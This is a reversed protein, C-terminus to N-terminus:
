ILGEKKMFVMADNLSTFIRDAQSLQSHYSFNPQIAMCTLGAAKASATGNKTDEFVVIEKKDIGLKEIARLYSEPHPKSNEVDDFTIWFEFQDSWGLKKISNTVSARGSGTVIAKRAGNLQRLTESVGPMITIPHTQAAQEIFMANQEVVESPSMPLKFREVLMPTNKSFPVGMFVELYEEWSIHGEFPKLFKNMMDFHFKETDVLTGDFDFLLAKFKKM